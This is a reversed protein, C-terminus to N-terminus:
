AARGTARRKGDSALADTSVKETCGGILTSVPVGMVRSIERWSKGDARMQLATDRRFIRKPRGLHKGKARANAMGSRVREIILSREFEAMAAILAFMLRGQPTTLDIADRLSVFAIGLSQLENLTVVLHELSRGLRDLKWVVAADFSRRRAAAMLQNLAPRSAKAGSIGRDVYEVVEWGQQVCYERLDRLQMDENQDLTSIRVYLAARM